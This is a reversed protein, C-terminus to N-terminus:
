YIYRQYPIILFVGLVLPVGFRKLKAKIVRSAGKVQYSPLAFYGSIFFLVPMLFLGLFELVRDFFVYNRDDVPWWITYFSYDCAAHLVVVLLVMLYRIHDFFYIRNQSASEPTLAM